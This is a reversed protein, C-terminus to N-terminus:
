LLVCISVFAHRDLCHRGYRWLGGDGDEEASFGGSDTSLTDSLNADYTCDHWASTASTRSAAPRLISMLSKRCDTDGSPMRIPLSPSSSLLTLPLLFFLLLLRTLDFRLSLLRSPDATQGEQQPTFLVFM